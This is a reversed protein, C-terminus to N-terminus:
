KGSSRLSNKGCCGHQNRGSMGDTSVTMKSSKSDKATLLKVDSTKKKAVTKKSM